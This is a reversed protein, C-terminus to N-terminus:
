FNNPDLQDVLKNADNGASSRTKWHPGPPPFHAVGIQYTPNQEPRRRREVRKENERQQRTAGDPGIEGRRRLRLHGQLRLQQHPNIRRRRALFGFGIGHSKADSLTRDAAAVNWPFPPLEEV